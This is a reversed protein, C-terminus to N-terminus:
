QWKVKEMGKVLKSIAKSAVADASRLRGWDLVVIGDDGRWERCDSWVIRNKRADILRACISAEPPMNGREERYSEVAGVVVGDVGATETISHSNRRDLEGKGRIRMDVMLRRVEGFEAPDFKRNKFLQSIFLYTAIMGAYDRGSDNDFPMVAIRYASEKEKEPAVVSLPNLLADVTKEALKEIERITGLELVKTFDEGTFSAHNAWVISGDSTRVVRASLGVVPNSGGAFSNVSGVMICVVDMEQGMKQAAERAIHGTSRIREKLLFADVRADDAVSFGKSELRSRISPMIHDLASKDGSFNEFPLLAIKEM